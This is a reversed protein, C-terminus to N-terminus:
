LGYLQFLLVRFKVHCAEHLWLRQSVHAPGEELVEAEALRTIEERMSSTPIESVYLLVTFIQPDSGHVLCV